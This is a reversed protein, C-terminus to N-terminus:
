LATALDKRPRGISKRPVKALDPRGLHQALVQVVFESLPVGREDAAAGALAKLQPDAYVRIEATLKEDEHPSRRNGVAM